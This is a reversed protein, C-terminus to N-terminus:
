YWAKYTNDFWVISVYTRELLDATARPVLKATVRTSHSVDPSVNVELLWPRFTADVLFDLGLWEFGHQTLPSCCLLLLPLFHASCWHM